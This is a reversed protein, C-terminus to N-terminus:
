HLQTTMNSESVVTLQTHNKQANQTYRTYMMLRWGNSDWGDDPQRSSSHGNNKKSPKLTNGAVAHMYAHM